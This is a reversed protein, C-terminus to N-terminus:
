VNNFKCTIRRMWFELNNVEIADINDVAVQRATWLQSKGWWLRDTKTHKTLLEDDTSLEYCKSLQRMWEEYLPQLIPKFSVEYRDEAIMKNDTLCAFIVSPLSIRSVMDAREGKTETIDTVIAVFPYKKGSLETSKSMVALKDIIEFIPGYLYNVSSHGLAVEAKKTVTRLIDILYQSM